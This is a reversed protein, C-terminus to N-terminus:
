PTGGHRRALLRDYLAQTTDRVRRQIPKLLALDRYHEPDHPVEIPTGIAIDFRVPLPIPSWFSLRGFTFGPYAAFGGVIALPVVPVGTRVALRVFGYRDDWRLRYHRSRPTSERRGGPTIMLQNGTELARLCSSESPDILGVDRKLAGLGPVARELPNGVAAAIRLRVREGRRELWERWAVHYVLMGLDTNLYGAGHHTVYICQGTTPTGEVRTRHYASMWRALYRYAVRFRWHDVPLERSALDTTGPAGGDAAPATGTM